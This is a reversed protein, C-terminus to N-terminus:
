TLILSLKHPCSPVHHTPLGKRETCLVYSPLRVDPDPKHLQCEAENSGGREGVRCCGPPSSTRKSCAPVTSQSTLKHDRLPQVLGSGLLM